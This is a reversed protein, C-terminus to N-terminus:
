RITRISGATAITAKTGSAFRARIEAESKLHFLERNASSQLVIKATRDVRNRQYPQLRLRGKPSMATLRVAPKTPEHAACPTM